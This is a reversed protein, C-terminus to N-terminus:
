LIQICVQLMTLDNIYLICSILMRDDNNVCLCVFGNIRIAQPLLVDTLTKVSTFVLRKKGGYKSKHTNLTAQKIFM